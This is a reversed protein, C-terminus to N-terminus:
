VQGIRIKLITPGEFTMSNLFMKAFSQHDCLRINFSVKM